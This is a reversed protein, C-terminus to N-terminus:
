IPAYGTYYYFFWCDYLHILSIICLFLKVIFPINYVFILFLLFLCVFLHYSFKIISIISM